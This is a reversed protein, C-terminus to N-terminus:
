EWWSRLRRAALVVIEGKQGTTPGYGNHADLLRLCDYLGVSKAMHFPVADTTVTAFCEILLAYGAPVTLLKAPRSTM